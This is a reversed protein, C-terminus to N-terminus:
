MGQNIKDRVEHLLIKWPRYVKIGVIHIQYRLNM